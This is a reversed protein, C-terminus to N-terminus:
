FDRSLILGENCSYDKEGIELDPTLRWYRNVILPETYLLPDELTMQVELINGDEIRRIREMIHMQESQPLGEDSLWVRENLLVTDVFLMDGHWHGISHGLFTGLQWDDLTVHERGDTRIRRAQYHESFTILIGDFAEIFEIAWEADAGLLRVPGPPWCRRLVPDEIEQNAEFRALGEATFPPNEPWPTNRLGAPTQGTGIGTWVGTLDAGPTQGRRLQAWAPVALLVLVLFCLYRNPRLKM